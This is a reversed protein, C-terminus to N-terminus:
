SGKLVFAKSRGLKKVYCVVLGDDGGGESMGSGNLDTRFMVELPPGLTLSPPDLLVLSSRYQACLQSTSMRRAVSM